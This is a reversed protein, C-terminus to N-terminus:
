EGKKQTRQIQKNHRNKLNSSIYRHIKISKKLYYPDVLGCSGHIVQFSKQKPDDSFCWTEYQFREGWMEDYFIGATSVMIEPTIQTHMIRINPRHRKMKQEMQWAAYRNLQTAPTKKGTWRLRSTIRYSKEVHRSGSGIVTKKSFSTVVLEGGDL